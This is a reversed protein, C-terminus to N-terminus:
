LKLKLRMGVCIRDREAIGLFQVQRKKFIKLGAYTLGTGIIGGLITAGLDASDFGGGLGLRKKDIADWTEKGLGAAVAWAAGFAASQEPTFECANGAMTGWVGIVFGAGAHFQKDVPIQAALAANILLVIITLKTKM